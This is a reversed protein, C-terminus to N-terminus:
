EKDKVAQRMQSQVMVLNDEVVKKAQLIREQESEARRISDKLDQNAREREQIKDDKELCSKKLARIQEELEKLDTIKKEQIDRIICLEHEKLVEYNKHM